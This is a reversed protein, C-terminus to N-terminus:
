DYFQPSHRQTDSQPKDHNIWLAAKKEAMIDAIRKMSAVTQAGDVNMSPVRKNDWNDKFHAADGSLVIWGTTPLHVLLSQHGPTHGPTSIITASGDGFLDLDGDLKRVPHKSDFPPKKDAAFAWDYEAKQMLVEAAPFMDVNGTHDPHTHSVGVYRVDAPKVGIEALQSALTRTRTATGIPTTLPKDAIADPYGTDWLLYNSGHRLLYCNDSLVLPKGVNVGPSWRAQDLASNTGCDLIYLRDVGKAATQAVAAGAALVLFLSFVSRVIKM